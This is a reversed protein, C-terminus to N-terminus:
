DLHASEDDLHASKDDLHASEDTDSVDLESSAPSSIFLNDLDTTFRVPKGTRKGITKDKMHLIYNHLQKRGEKTKAFSIMADQFSQCAEDVENKSM